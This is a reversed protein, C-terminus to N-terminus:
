PKVALHVADVEVIRSALWMEQTADIFKRFHATAMHADFAEQSAYVEYFMFKSPEDKRTVAYISYVGPEIRASDDMEEVLAAKFEELRAPDVDIEAVKVIAGAPLKQSVQTDQQQM